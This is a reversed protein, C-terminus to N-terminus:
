TAPKDKGEKRPEGKWVFQASKKIFAISGGLKTFAASEFIWELDDDNAAAPDAGVKKEM